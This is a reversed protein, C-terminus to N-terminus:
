AIRNYEPIGKVWTGTTSKHQTTRVKVGQKGRPSTSITSGDEDPRTTRKGVSSSPQSSSSTSDETSTTDDKSASPAAKSRLHRFFHSIKDRAVRDDVEVWGFDEWKLFRGSSAHIMDLIREAIMTKAFKGAQEYESRHLEVLHTARLNGTHERTYKGRGLLVDFRRPLIIGNREEREEQRQRINLWEKHYDLSLAGNPLIPHYKTPIGYTELEFLLNDHNGFHARFRTRMDRALFLQFGQVFPKLSADDYCYHMGAIKKPIGTLIRDVQRMLAFPELRAYEGFNSKVGVMGKLQNEEDQITANFVYWMARMCSEVPCDQPRHMPAISVISRGAADRVPLVQLFGSELARIDDPSLDSLLIDRALIPGDGFLTQKIEFHRVIRQAAVHSRFYDCRLFRLRFSRDQVYSADWHMARDYAPKKRIKQIGVEVQELHSDVDDPDEEDVRAIGHIDFLIKEHEVLSLKEMEKSLLQEAFDQDLHSWFTADAPINPQDMSLM